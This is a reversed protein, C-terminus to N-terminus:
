KWFFRQFNAYDTLLELLSVEHESLQKQIEHITIESYIELFKSDAKLHEKM